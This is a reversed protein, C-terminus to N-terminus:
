FRFRVGGGTQLGGARVDVTQDGTTPLSMTARMYTVTFGVGVNRSVFFSADGGVNFGVRWKSVDTTTASQFTAQDYPYSQTWSLDTVLGQSVRFFSPGGFAMVRFQPTVPAVVRMQAHFGIEERTLNSVTGTVARPQNFFFPHPVEGTLSTTETESFRTVGGAIGFHPTLLTGVSVDFSPGSGVASTTDFEGQEAYAAFTVHELVNNTMSQYTGNASVFTALPPRTSRRPVPARAGTRPASTGSATTSGRLNRLPPEPSGPLLEIQTRAILGRNFTAGGLAAPVVVEYWRDSRGTLDLVTGAKVTAILISTETRWISANDVLVRGQSTQADADVVHLCAALALAFLLPRKM